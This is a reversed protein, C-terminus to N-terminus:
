FVPLTRPVEPMRGLVHDPKRRVEEFSDRIYFRITTVEQKQGIRHIRALAQDEITPNRSCLVRLHYTHIGVPM